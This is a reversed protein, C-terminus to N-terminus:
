APRFAAREIKWVGHRQVYASELVRRETRKVFGEGQLRAMEVLTCDPGIAHSTEVTCHFHAIATGDSGLEVVDRESFGHEAISVVRADIVVAAPDTFLAVLEDHAGANLLRAYARQLARIANVNELEAIRAAVGDGQEGASDAALAPSIALPAALVVGAHGFFM